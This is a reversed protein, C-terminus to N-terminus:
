AYSVYCSIFHSLSFYYKLSHMNCLHKKMIRENKEPIMLSHELALPVVRYKLAHKNKRINLKSPTYYEPQSTFNQQKPHSDLHISLNKMKIPRAQETNLSDLTVLVM